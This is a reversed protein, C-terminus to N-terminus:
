AVGHTRRLQGCAAEIDQGKERRLTTTIGQILLCDRFRECQERPSPSFPLGSVPNWPILNVTAKLERAFLVLANADDLSDNVGHLLTWEFTIQRDSRAQYSLIADRLKALPYRRNLPVLKSRLTDNAAHLSISLRVQWDEETFREIGPVDGATSVTIKRAGIGLGDKEMLLRISKSVADYNRFPEGMGMYVINPTRGELDEDRLLSLAQEVIEGTSLNRTFGALGTACFECKLPCGVQSSLCLTVRTRDRILVSEVSEGDHLQFLAKKTGTQQSQKMHITQLCTALCRTKLHSRLAKSVDTMQDFDPMKKQHLWRFVQSAQYRKIDLAEVMETVSMDLLYVKEQNLILNM